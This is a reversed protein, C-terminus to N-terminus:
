LGRWIPQDVARVDIFVATDGYQQLIERAVSDKKEVDEARGFFIEVGDNTLLATEDVAAVSIARVMGRLEPSLGDLVALANALGESDSRTGPTPDIDKLDRVVVLTTTEELSQREIVYGDSDVVLYEDVLDVLAAPEREEVTIRMTDPFNRSVNASAVWPDTEVRERVEDAPFRLLTADEPVQALARVHDATLREAGEVEVVKIPFVDSNYLFGCALVVVAVAGLLV